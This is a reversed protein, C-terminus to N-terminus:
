LRAEALQPSLRDFDDLLSDRSARLTRTLLLVCTALLAAGNVVHMTTLIPPRGRWVLFMGLLVQAVLLALLLAAPRVILMCGDARQIGRIAFVLVLMTVILAGFRTHAFNLDVYVNHSEPTWRGGSTAHPFTPIALGAGLHRMSAGAILQLFIFVTTAVGIGCIGRLKPTPALTHWAPSLAAAIVVLLCLEAQAFCAHLVRLIVATSTNGGTEITVRLGGLVAQGLMGVFAGFALWRVMAPQAHNAARAQFLISVAFVLAPVGLGLLAVTKPAAGALRAVGVVVLASMAALPIGWKCRWVWACLVGVLLAVSEAMLRHGHELRQMLNEWWGDPNVSGHSLPWDPFAMGAGSTTTHGGVLILAFTLVVVLKAFWALAPNPPPQISRNL